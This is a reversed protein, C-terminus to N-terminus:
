DNHYRKQCEVFPGFNGFAFNVLEYFIHKEEDESANPESSQEDTIFFRPCLQVQGGVEHAYDDETPAQEDGCLQYFFSIEGCTEDAWLLRNVPYNKNHCKWRKQELCAM